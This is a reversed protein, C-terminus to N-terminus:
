KKIDGLRKLLNDQEIKKAESQKELDYQVKRKKSMFNPHKNTLYFKLSSSDGERIAEMLREEALDNFVVEGFEKELKLLEEFEKKHDKDWFYNQMRKLTIGEGELRKIEKLRELAKDKEYYRNLKEDEKTYPLLKTKVYYALRILKIGSIEALEKTTILKKSEKGM